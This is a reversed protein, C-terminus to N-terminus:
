SVSRHGQQKLALSGNLVKPNIYLQFCNLLSKLIIQIFEQKRLVKFTGNM